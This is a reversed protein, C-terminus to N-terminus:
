EVPVNLSLTPHTNPAITANLVQFSLEFDTRQEKTKVQLTLSSHAPLIIIDSNAHFTYDSTNGLIFPTSSNNILEVEAVSSPGIYAASDVTICAELLPQVNAQKGILKHNFYAVTRGAFLAERISESTKEKAMVITVPRHGGEEIKYQWDVLGHIDSTGIVTLNNDIAVQLAEDSYTLDNVVEIGHLLTDAILQKHLDSLAAVGDQKQVIWNPHNWFTFGGQRRVERFSELSDELVLKNADEIFIANVHGIPLQRTIEAGRIVMLKYPRAYTEALNHARNRDPHPIDEGHPQYELHETLSIVAVSDRLAEKVRIDPWVSGDSFVTHMHLDCTISEYGEVNPFQIVRSHVHTHTKAHQASLVNASLSLLFLFLTRFM